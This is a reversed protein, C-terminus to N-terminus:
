QNPTSKLHLAVAFYLFLVIIWLWKQHLFLTLSYDSFIQSVLFILSTFFNWILILWSSPFIFSLPVILFSFLQVVPVLPAIILNAVISFINTSGIFILLFPLVWLSAWVIPIFYSQLLSIIRCSSHSVKKSLLLIGYVASFSLLFWLDYLLYAPQLFLMLCFAIELVKRVSSIRWFFIALLSLSAMITARLVSAEAGCVLAYCIVFIGICVFRIYFPLFFLVVSMFSVLLAINGWSVAVIHVIWSNIFNQYTSEPILSVDWVVMGALLGAEKTPWFIETIRDIIGKRLEIFINSEASINKVPSVSKAFFTGAYWKLFLRKSLNFEGFDFVPLSGLWGFISKRELGNGKFSWVFVLSEWLEVKKDVIVLVQWWHWWRVVIKNKWRIETVVGSFVWSSFESMSRNYSAELFYMRSFLLLFIIVNALIYYKQSSQTFKKIFPFLAMALLLWLFVIEYNECWTLLISYWSFILVM